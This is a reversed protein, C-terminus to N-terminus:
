HENKGKKPCFAQNRFEQLDEFFLRLATKDASRILEIAERIASDPVSAGVDTMDIVIGKKLADAFLCEAIEAAITAAVEPLLYERNTQKSNM